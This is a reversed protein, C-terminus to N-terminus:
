ETGDGPAVFQCKVVSDSVLTGYSLIGLEPNLPAMDIRVQSGASLASGITGDPLYSVAAGDSFFLQVYDPLLAYSTNGDADILQPREVIWQASDGVLPILNGSSDKGTQFVFSTGQGSTLNVMYATASTAGKGTTCLTMGVTDGFAVSPTTLKVLRKGPYWEWFAYCDKTVNNGDTTVDVGVGIQCVDTSQVSLDGDIGIWSLASYTRNDSPSSVNPITWTSTIWNVSQGSPPVVRSGSWFPHYENGSGVLPQEARAPWHKRPRDRARGPVIEFKPEVYQFKHKVLNWIKEFRARQHVDLEGPFGHKKREAASAKLPDFGRPPPTFTTIEIPGREGGVDLKIEPM